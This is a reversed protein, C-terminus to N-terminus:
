SCVLTAKKDNGSFFVVRRLFLFTVFLDSSPLILFPCSSRYHLITTVESNSYDNNNYDNIISIINTNLGPVWTLLACVGRVRVDSSRGFGM